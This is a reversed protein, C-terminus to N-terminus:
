SKKRAAARSHTPNEPNNECYNPFIIKELYTLQENCYECTQNVVYKNSDHYMLYWLQKFVYFRSKFKICKTRTRYFRRTM